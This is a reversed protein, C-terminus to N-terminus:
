ISESLIRKVDDRIKYVNGVLEYGNSVLIDGFGSGGELPETVHQKLIVHNRGLNEALMTMVQQCKNIDEAEVEIEINNDSDRECEITRNEYKTWYFLEMDFMDMSFKHYIYVHEDDDIEFEPINDVRFSMMYSGDVINFGHLRECLQAFMHRVEHKDESVYITFTKKYTDIDMGHLKSIYKTNSLRIFKDGFYTFM